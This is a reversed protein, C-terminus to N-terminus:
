KIAEGFTILTGNPDSVSFEKQSWPKLELKGNPHISIGEEEQINQYFTDIGPATRVYIMFDSHQPVLTQHRFFHIEAGGNSMIFYDGYDATLDFQLSRYFSVTEERDIFPLKPIVTFKM